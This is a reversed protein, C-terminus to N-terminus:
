VMGSAAVAFTFTYQSQFGITTFEKASITGANSLTPVGSYFLTTNLIKAPAGGVLSTMIEIAGTIDYVSVSLTPKAPSFSTLILNSCKVTVPEETLAAVDKSNILWYTSPAGPTWM